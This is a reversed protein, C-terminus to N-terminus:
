KTSILHLLSVYKGLTPLTSLFLCTFMHVFLFFCTFLYAGWSVFLCFIGTVRKLSAILRSPLVTKEGIKAPYVTETGYKWWKRIEMIILLYICQAYLIYEIINLILYLSYLFSVMM